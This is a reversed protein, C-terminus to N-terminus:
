FGDGIFHAGVDLAMLAGMENGVTKLRSIWGDLFGMGKQIWGVVESTILAVGGVIDKIAAWSTEIGAALEDKHTTLYDNTQSVWGVIDHYAGELGGRGVQTLLTELTSKQSELTGQIDESAYGLGKFQSGLWQVLDGIERHKAIEQELNPIRDKLLMGIQDTVRAQGTLLARMEQAIQIGSVQGQTSLKIRDVIIGLSDIEEKRLVIGKQALINWAQTMEKGSAFYRAAALELTNFMDKSYALAQTYNQQGQSQDVAMDTLTAAVGITTLKFDDVAQISDKFAGVAARGLGYLGTTVLAVVGLKRMLAGAFQDAGEAGQQGSRAGAEGIGELGRKVEEIKANGQSDITLIVKFEAAM